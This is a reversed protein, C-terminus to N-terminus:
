ATTPQGGPGTIHDWIAFRITMEAGYDPTSM